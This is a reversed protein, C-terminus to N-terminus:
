VQIVWRVTFVASMETHTCPKELVEYFGVNRSSTLLVDEMGGLDGAKWTWFRETVRVGTTQSSCSHSQELFSCLIFLLFGLLLIRSPLM